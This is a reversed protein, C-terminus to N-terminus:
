GNATMPDASDIKRAQSATTCRFRVNLDPRHTDSFPWFFVTSYKGCLLWEIVNNTPQYALQARGTDEDINTV